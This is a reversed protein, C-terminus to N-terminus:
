AASEAEHAPLLALIADIVEGKVPKRMLPIGLAEAKALTASQVNATLLAVRTEPREGLIQAAAEIGTIGPMNVDLIVLAPEHVRAQAIAEPGDGAEILRLEPRRNRILGCAINRSIRSDDVVLVTAPTPTM